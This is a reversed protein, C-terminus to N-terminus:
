ERAPKLGFAGSAGSTPWGLKLEVALIRNKSADHIYLRNREFDASTGTIRVGTWKGRSDIDAQFNAPFGSVVQGDKARLGRVVFQPCPKTDVADPFYVVSRESDELLTKVPNNYILPHGRWRFSWVDPKTASPRIGIAIRSDSYKEGDGLVSPERLIAVLGDRLLAIHEVHYSTGGINMARDVSSDMEHRPTAVLEVPYRAALVSAVERKPTLDQTRIDVTFYESDGKLSKLEFVLVGGRDVVFVDDLLYMYPELSPKQARSELTAGIDALADVEAKSAAIQKGIRELTSGELGGVSKVTRQRLDIIHLDYKASDIYKLTYQYQYSYDSWSREALSIASQYLVLVDGVRKWGPVTLDSAKAFPLDVSYAVALSARDVLRFRKTTDDVQALVFLQKEDLVEMSYAGEFTAHRLRGPVGAEGLPIRTIHLPGSKDTLLIEDATVVAIDLGKSSDYPLEIQWLQGGAVADEYGGDRYSQYGPSCAGVSCFVVPVLIQLSLSHFRRMAREKSNGLFARAGVRLAQPHFLITLTPIPQFALDGNSGMVGTGTRSLDLTSGNFQQSSM